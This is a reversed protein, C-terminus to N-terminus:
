KRGFAFGRLRGQKGITPLQVSNVTGHYELLGTQSDDQGVEYSLNGVYISM